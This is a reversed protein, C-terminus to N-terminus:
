CPEFVKKFKEKRTSCLFFKGGPIEGFLAREEKVAHITHKGSKRERDWNFTLLFGIVSFPDIQRKHTGPLRFWGGFAAKKWLGRSFETVNCLSDFSLSITLSVIILKSLERILKLSKECPFYVVFFTSPSDFQHSFYVCSVRFGRCSSCKLWPRLRAASKRNRLLSPIPHSM